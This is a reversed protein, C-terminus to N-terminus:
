ELPLNSIFDELVKKQSVGHRRCYEALRDAAPASVNLTSNNGRGLPKHKLLDGGGAATIMEAAQDYEVPTITEGDFLFYTQKKQARYLGKEPLVLIASETDYIKTGIRKKM